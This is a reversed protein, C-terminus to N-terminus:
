GIDRGFDHLGDEGLRRRKLASKSVASNDFPQFVEARREIRL